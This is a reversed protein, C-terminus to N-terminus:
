RRTNHQTEEDREVDAVRLRLKCALHRILDSILRSNDADADVNDLYLSFCGLVIDLGLGDGDGAGAAVLLPAVRYLKPSDTGSGSPGAGRDGLGRGCPDV